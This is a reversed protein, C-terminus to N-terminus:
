NSKKKQLHEQKELKKMAKAYDNFDENSLVQDGYRVKEYAKLAIKAEYGSLKLRDFWLPASEGPMRPYGRKMMLKEFQSFKKRTRDKTPLWSRSKFYSENFETGNISALSGTLMRDPKLSIFLKKRWIFVLIALVALAVLSWVLITYDYSEWEKFHEQKFQDQIAKSSNAKSEADKRFFKLVQQIPGELLSFLKWVPVAVVYYLLFFIGDLLRLVLYKLPGLLLLTVAGLSIIALPASFDKWSNKLTASNKIYHVFMRIGLMLVFQIFLTGFIVAQEDKLLYLSLFTSIVVGM